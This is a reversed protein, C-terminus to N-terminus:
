TLIRRAAILVDDVSILKMCKHNRCKFKYCPRRCNTEKRIVIYKDSQPYPSFQYNDGPGFLAIIPTQVAAAIHMPGSDNTIFLRLRELLATLQKLTFNTAIILRKDGALRAIEEIMKQESSDGTIVIKCGYEKILREALGAWCGEFWRRSPRFAGPNFGILVDKDSIDHLKLFDSIFIRDGDLIPIDLKVEKIDVGLARCVDLNLEVQHKHELTKEKIKFDFFFGRGDTDRGIWFKGGILMFFIAMKFAGIWSSIRELNIVIDFDLKRLEKLTKFVKVFGRKSFLHKLATDKIDLVFMEDIYPNGAMLQRSRSIVLLGLYADKYKNRLAKITPIGMVLDGIGALQVILISKVESDLIM